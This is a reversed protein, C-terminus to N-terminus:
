RGPRGLSQVPELHHPYRGSKTPKDKVRPIVEMPYAGMAQWTVLQAMPNRGGVGMTLAEGTKVVYGHAVLYWPYADPLDSERRSVREIVVNQGLYDDIGALKGGVTVDMPSTAQLIRATMADGDDDAELPIAALAQEYREMIAQTSVPQVTGAADELAKAM